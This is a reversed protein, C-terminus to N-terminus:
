KVADQAPRTLTQIALGESILGYSLAARMKQRLDDKLLTRTYRRTLRPKAAIDAALEHARLMLRDAPLVENVAGFDFLDQASLVQGTMLFYNARTPGLLYPWVVHAGDGPVVGSAFHPLDQFTADQGAVVIDAMLPLEPHYKVPGNVVGVVPVPIDLFNQTFAVSELVTADWELPSSGGFSAANFSACFDAGSGALVVVENKQDAAIARFCDGLEAHADSSWVLSEGGTHLMVTLVGAADRNLAINHYRDSYDLLSGTERSM